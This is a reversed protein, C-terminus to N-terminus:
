YLKSVHCDEESQQNMTKLVKYDIPTLDLSNSPWTDPLRILRIRIGRKCSVVPQWVTNYLQNSLRSYVRYLWNDFPNSLWISLQNYRTYLCKVSQWVPKVVPKVVPQITYIPSSSKCAIIGSFNDAVDWRQSAIVKVCISLNQYSKASINGIFYATLLRKVTGCWIVQAEASGPLIPFHSFQM